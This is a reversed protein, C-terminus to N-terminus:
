IRFAVAEKGHEHNWEHATACFGGHPSEKGGGKERFVGGPEDETDVDGADNKADDGTQHYLRHSHICFHLGNGYM